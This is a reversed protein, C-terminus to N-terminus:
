LSTTAPARAARVTLAGPDSIGPMGADTCLAVVADDSLRDLVGEVRRAEAFAPLSRVEGDLDHARLLQRTRRTDEAYIVAAEGLVRLARLTIDELNGIPTAVVYLGPELRDRPPAAAIATAVAPRGPKTAGTM